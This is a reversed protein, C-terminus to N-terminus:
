EPYGLTGMEPLDLGQLKSKLTFCASAEVSGTGQLFCLLSWLRIVFISGVERSHAIIQTTGGYLLGTVASEVDTGPRRIRTAM